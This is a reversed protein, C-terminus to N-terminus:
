GWEICGAEIKSVPKFHGLENSPNKFAVGWVWDEM